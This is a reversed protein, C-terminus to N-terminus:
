RDAPVAPLPMPGTIGDTAYAADAPVLLMVCTGGGSAPQLLLTAGIRDARERMGRLGWHGRTGAIAADVPDLGVGDDEITLRVGARTCELRLSARRARAHRVVNTLAERAVGYAVTSVALRLASADGTAAVDVQLSRDIPLEAALRRLAEALEQPPVQPERLGSVRDRGEDVLGQARDAALELAERLPSEAPLRKLMSQLRLLLGYIGQLLTDHLEGAIRERESRAAVEALQRTAVDLEALKSRLRTRLDSIRANFLMLRALASSLFLWLLLREQTSHLSPLTLEPLNLMAFGLAVNLCLWTVAFARRHFQLSGFPLAIFLNFAFLYWLHPALFMGLIDRGCSAFMQIGTMSPDKFRKSLGSVICGLFILNNCVGIAVFSWVVSLDLQGAAWYLALFGSTAVYELSAQLTIKTRLRTKADLDLGNSTM